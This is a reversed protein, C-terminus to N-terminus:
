IDIQPNDRFYKKILNRGKMLNTKSTSQTVGLKKSIEKHSYGRLYYLEFTNRYSPPLMPEEYPEDPTEIRSYDYDYNQIQPQTKEKRLEDLINNSIVKKVWGEISGGGKYKHLNKYVKMFGNQCYDRAKDIDSTYKRCTTNLVKDWLSSYLERFNIESTDERLVRDYQSETIIIKM